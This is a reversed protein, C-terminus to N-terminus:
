LKTELTSVFRPTMYSFRPDVQVAGGLAERASVSISDGFVSRMATGVVGDGWSAAGGGGGGGGGGDRGVNAAGHRGDDRGHGHVGGRKVAAPEGGVYLVRNALIAAVVNLQSAQTVAGRFVRAGIEGALSTLSRQGVVASEVAEQRARLEGLARELAPVDWSGLLLADMYGAGEDTAAAHRELTERRGGTDDQRARVDALALQAAGL